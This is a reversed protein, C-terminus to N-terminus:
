SRATLDRLGELTQRWTQPSLASGTLPGAKQAALGTDQRAVPALPRAPAPAPEAAPAPRTRPTGGGAIRGVARAHSGAGRRPATRADRAARAAELDTEGLVSVHADAVGLVFAQEGVRVVAVSSSRSLSARDLVEIIRQDKTRSGKRARRAVVWIVGLVAALSVLLRGVLTVTDM